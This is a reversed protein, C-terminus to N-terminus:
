VEDLTPLRDFEKYFDLVSEKIAIAEDLTDAFRTVRAKKRDITIRYKSYDKDFSINKVGTSRNNSNSEEKSYRIELLDDYRTKTCCSQCIQDRDLFQQYSQQLHYTHKRNCKKCVTDISYYPRGSKFAKRLDDSRYKRRAIKLKGPEYTKSHMLNGTARYNAIIEDRALVAEEYTDYSEVIPRSKRIVRVQYPLRSGEFFEINRDIRM